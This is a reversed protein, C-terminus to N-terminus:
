ILQTTVCNPIQLSLVKKNVAVGVGLVCKVKTHYMQRRCVCKWEFQTKPFQLIMEEYRKEWDASHKGGLLNKPPQSLSSWPFLEFYFFCFLVTSEGM